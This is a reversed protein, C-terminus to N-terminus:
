GRKSEYYKEMLFLIVETNSELGENEMIKDFSNIVEEYQEASLFMVIQKVKSNIYTQLYNHNIDEDFEPEKEDDNLWSPLDLGWNDIEFLNWDAQLVDWNWEGYNLNDKIVFQEKQEKTLNNVKIYSVEEIGLEKLARLRMNGGIVMNNEDVVIPRLDLMSPFDMISKKLKDLQEKKITRPNSPNPKIESVKIKEINM